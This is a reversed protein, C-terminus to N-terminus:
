MAAGYRVQKLHLILLANEGTNWTLTYYNREYLIEVVTSGDANVTAQSIAQPLDQMSKSQSGTTPPGTEGPVTEQIQLHIQSEIM